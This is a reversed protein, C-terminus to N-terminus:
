SWNPCGLALRDLFKFSPQPIYSWPLTSAQWAPPIPNLGWHWWPFPLSHPALFPHPFSFFLHSLIPPLLFPSCSPPLHSPLFPGVAIRDNRFGPSQNLFLWHPATKGLHKLKLTGLNDPKFGWLERPNLLRSFTSQKTFLDMSPVTHSWGCFKLAGPDSAGM